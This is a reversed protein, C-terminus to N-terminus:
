PQYYVRHKKLLNTMALPIEAQKADQLLDRNEYWHSLGFLMAQMLTKPVKSGNDSYGVVYEVWVSNVECSSIPWCQRPTRYISAPTSPDTSVSVFYVAPDVVQPSGTVDLYNISTISQVTSRSLELRDHRHFSSSRTLRMGYGSYFERDLPLRFGPFSDFYERFTQTIIGRNTEIEANERTVGILHLIYDDQSEDDADIRLFSKAFALDIPELVAPTILKLGAM